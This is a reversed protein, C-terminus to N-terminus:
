EAPHALRAALHRALANITGLARLEGASLSLGTKMEIFLCIETLVLSDAELEAFMFDHAPDALHEGVGPDNLLPAASDHLAAVVLRRAALFSDANSLQSGRAEDPM